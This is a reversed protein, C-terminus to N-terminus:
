WLTQKQLPIVLTGGNDESLLPGFSGSPAGDPFGGRFTPSFGAFPQCLRFKRVSTSIGDINV